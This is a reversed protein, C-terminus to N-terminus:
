NKGVTLSSSREKWEPWVACESVAQKGNSIKYEHMDVIIDVRRATIEGMGM